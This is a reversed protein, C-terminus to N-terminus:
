KALLIIDLNQGLFTTSKEKILNAVERFKPWGVEPPFFSAAM